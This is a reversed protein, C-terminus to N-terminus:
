KYVDFEKIYRAVKDAVMHKFRKGRSICRRIYSSSTDKLSKSLITINRPLDKSIDYGRRPFVKIPYKEMFERGRVWTSEIECKNEYEKKNSVADSGVFWTLEAGLYEKELKEMWEISPTNEKFVDDFKLVLRPKKLLMVPPISLLTMVIRDNPDCNIEKGERIGSIILVIETYEKSQFIERLMNIHEKHLPNAATGMVAIKKKTM